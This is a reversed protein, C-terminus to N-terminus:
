SHILRGGHQSIRIDLDDINELGAAVVRGIGEEFRELLHVALRRRLVSTQEPFFFLLFGGAAM